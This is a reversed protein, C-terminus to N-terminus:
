PEVILCSISFKISNVKPDFTQRMYDFPVAKYSMGSALSLTVPTQSKSIRHSDFWDKVTSEVSSSSEGGAFVTGDIRATGVNKGFSFVFAKGGLTVSVGTVDMEHINIDDIIIISKDSSSKLGEVAYYGAGKSAGKM